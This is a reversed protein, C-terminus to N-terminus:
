TKDKKQLDYRHVKRGRMKEAGRRKKFGEGRDKGKGREVDEKKKWREGRM